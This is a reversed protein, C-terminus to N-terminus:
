QIVGETPQISVAPLRARAADGRRRLLYWAAPVVLM